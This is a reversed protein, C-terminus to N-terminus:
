FNRMLFWASSESTFPYQLWAWSNWLETVEVQTLVRNWIWVEDIEWNFFETILSGFRPSGNDWSGIFGSYTWSDIIDWDLYVTYNWNDAVWVYHYWQDANYPVWTQINGGSWFRANFDWEAVYLYFRANTWRGSFIYTANSNQSSGIKTWLSVTVTNNLWTLWNNEVNDNVWDFSLWSGIKGTTWTAGNITWDNSGVSDFATTWSNEDLKYYSILWTTLSM